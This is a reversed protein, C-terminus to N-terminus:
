KRRNLWRDMMADNEYEIAFAELQYDDSDWEDPPKAQLEEFRRLLEADTPNDNFHRNNGTNFSHIEHHLGM